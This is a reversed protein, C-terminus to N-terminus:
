MGGASFRAASLRNRLSTFSRFRSRRCVIAHDTRRGDLGHQALLEAPQALAEKKLVRGLRADLPNACEQEIPVTGSEREHSSQRAVDVAEHDFARIDIRVSASEIEHLSVAAVLDGDAYPEPVV